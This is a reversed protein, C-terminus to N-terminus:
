AGARVDGRAQGHHHDGGGLGAPRLHHGVAIVVDDVVPRAGLFGDGVLRLRALDVAGVHGACRVDEGRHPALGVLLGSRGPRRDPVPRSAEGGGM